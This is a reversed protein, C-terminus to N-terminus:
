RSRETGSRLVGRSRRAERVGGRCDRRSEQVAPLLSAIDRKENCVAEVVRPYLESLLDHQGLVALGEIVCGFGSWGGPSRYAGIKPVDFSQALFELADDQGVYAKTLFFAGPSAGYWPGGVASVGAAEMQRLAEDWQGRWFAALALSIRAHETWPFGMRQQDELDRQWSEEWGDICGTLMFECGASVRNLNMLAVISGVRKALPELEEFIALVEDIEGILWHALAQWNLADALGWLDNEKRLLEASRSAAAQMNNPEVRALHHMAQYRLVDGLAGDDDLQEVLAVAELLKIDGDEPHGTLTLGMGEAALLRCKDADLDDTVAALGRPAIKVCEEWHGLLFEFFSMGACIRAVAEGDGLAEFLSLAEEWSEVAKQFNGSTHHAESRSSLLAATLSRDEIEDFSLATEFYYLAEESASSELAKEGALRLYRITKEADAASGSQYLHEAIDAVRGGPHSELELAEAVRLHIRQRRPLSLSGLLTHRILEHTFQYSSRRGAARPMVLQAGEAEEIADLVDDPDFGRLSELLELDFM